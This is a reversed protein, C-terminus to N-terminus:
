SQLDVFAVAREKCPHECHKVIVNAQMSQHLTLRCNGSRRGKIHASKPLCCVMM